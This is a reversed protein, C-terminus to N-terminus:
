YVTANCALRLGMGIYPARTPKNGWREGVRYKLKLNWAGLNGGRLTRKKCSKDYWDQCWEYVSGSMDYIGLANPLKQGVPKPAGFLPLSSAVADLDDSGSYLYESNNKGERAAYEWEAETPLRYNRGTRANLKIIYEQADNWTVFDAARTDTPVAPTNSRWLPNNGMIAEWQARTVEYKGIYFDALVGNGEVFVMEIEYPNYVTGADSIHNGSFPSSNGAKRGGLMTAALTQCGAYIAKEDKEMLRSAVNVIEGTEVDVLSSKIHINEGATLQSVCILSAGSLQGIKKRQESNVMGSQQFSLEKTIQNVDTRTFAKYGPTETIAAELAALVISKEIQTVAGGGVLPELIAVKKDQGFATSAYLLALAIFLIKRM